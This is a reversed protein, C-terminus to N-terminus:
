LTCLYWVNNSNKLTIFSLDGISSQSHKLMDRLFSVSTKVGDGDMLKTYWAENIHFMTLFMTPTSSKEKLKPLNLFARLFKIRRLCLNPSGISHDSSFKSSLYVTKM